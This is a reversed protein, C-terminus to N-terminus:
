LRAKACPEAQGAARKLEWADLLACVAGDGQARMREAVTEPGSGARRGPDAGAELLALVAPASGAWAALLLPAAWSKGQRDLDKEDGASRWPGAAPDSPREFYASKAAQIDYPVEADPNRGLALLGKLLEPYKGTWIGTWARVGRKVPELRGAEFLGFPLDALMALREGALKGDADSLACLGLWIESGMGEGALHLPLAGANFLSPMIEGFLMKAASGDALALSLGAVSVPGDLRLAKGGLRLAGASLGAMEFDRNLAATWEKWSAREWAERLPGPGQSLVALDLLSARGMWGESDLAFGADLLGSLAGPVGREIRLAADRPGEM